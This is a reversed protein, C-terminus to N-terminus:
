RGRQLPPLKRALPAACLHEAWKRVTKSPQAGPSSQPGKRTYQAHSFTLLTYQGPEWGLWGLFRGKEELRWRPYHKFNTMGVEVPPTLASVPNEEMYIRQQEQLILLSEPDQEDRNLPTLYLDFPDLM